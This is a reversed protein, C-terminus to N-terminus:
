ARRTIGPIALMDDITKAAAVRSDWAIMAQGCHVPPAAVLGCPWRKGDRLEAVCATFSGRDWGGGYVEFM